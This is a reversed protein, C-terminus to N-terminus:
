PKKEVTRWSGYWVGPRGPDATLPGNPLLDTVSHRAALDLLPDPFSSRGTVETGAPPNTVVMSSDPFVTNSWHRLSPLLQELEPVRDTAAVVVYTTTARIGGRTRWALEKGNLAGPLVSHGGPLPHPLDSQLARSPWLLVTGDEANQSFVYVHTPAAAQFSLRFPTEPALEDFNRGQRIEAGAGIRWTCAPGAPARTWWIAAAAIAALAPVVVLRPNM